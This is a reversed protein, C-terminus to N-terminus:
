TGGSAAAPAAIHERCFALLRSREGTSAFPVHAARRGCNPYCSSRLWWSVCFENGADNSPPRHARLIPRTGGPRVTINSFDIDPAPNDVRAVPVRTTDTTLSSVGSRGTSVSTVGSVPVASPAGSAGPGSASVVGRMPELYEEPIPVWNSSYQFTGRKLEQVLTRFEMPEIGAHSEAVSVGVGHLYEHASVQIARVICAHYYKTVGPAGAIQQFRETIFPAANTLASYVKWVAAVFPNDEGTGQFLAQCLVAYRGLTIGVEMIDRPFRIKEKERLTRYDSLSAQHEGQALQNGISAAELAQLHNTSGAFSVLFPQCGSSLDDVGHGVFQFGVVMQKLTATVIPVYLETSLGRSMCVRQFEQVLITHQESKACNALRKWVPALQEVQAVNGFRLLTRYTERYVEAVTRAERPATREATGDASRTLARLAGALTGTVESTLADPTALAPLDARVKGIMYRYVAAPLHVPGFQHHVVPVASLPGGGGRATCAARLWVLIDQCSVLENRAQMAGYLEQFAAKPPVGRRHVLIAAYRCPILQINRPRVVETEPTDEAYPGLSTAMDVWDPLLTQMAATTPVRVPTGVLHFATSPVEVTPYQHPMIDGLLGLIRDHYGSEAEGPLDMYKMFRHVIAVEHAGGVGTVLCLFAMPQRDSLTATQDRLTVPVPVPGAGGDVFRYGQLYNQVREPAPSNVEDSFMERYTKPPGPAPPHFLPPPAEAGVGPM